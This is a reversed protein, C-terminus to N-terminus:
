AQWLVGWALWGPAATALADAVSPEGEKRLRQVLEYGVGVVTSAFAMAPGAGYQRALFLLAVTGVVTGAGFALHMLKDRPITMAM